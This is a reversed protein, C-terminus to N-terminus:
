FLACGGADTAPTAASADPEGTLRARLDSLSVSRAAHKADVSWYPPVDTALSGIFEAIGAITQRLRDLSQLQYLADSPEAGNEEILGSVVAQIHDSLLVMNQLEISARILVINAPELGAAQDSQPPSVSGM